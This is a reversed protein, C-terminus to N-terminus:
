ETDLTDRTGTVPHTIGLDRRETSQIAVQVTMTLDEIDLKTLAELIAAMSEKTTFQVKYAKARKRPM